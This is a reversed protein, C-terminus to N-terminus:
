VCVSFCVCGQSQAVLASLMPHNEYVCLDISTRPHHPLPNPHRHPQNEATVRGGSVSGENDERWREAAEVVTAHAQRGVGLEAVEQVPHSRGLEYASLCQRGRGHTLTISLWPQVPETTITTPSPLPM